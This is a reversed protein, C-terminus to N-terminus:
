AFEPSPSRHGVYRGPISTCLLHKFFCDDPSRVSPDVLNRGGGAQQSVIILSMLVDIQASPQGGILVFQNFELHPYM